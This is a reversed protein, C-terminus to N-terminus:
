RLLNRPRPCIFETHLLLWLFKWIQIQAESYLITIIYKCNAQIYAHVWTTLFPGTTGTIFELNYFSHVPYCPQLHLLVELSIWPLLSETESSCHAILKFKFSEDQFIFSEKWPYLATLQKRGNWVVALCLHFAVQSISSFNGLVRLMWIKLIKM